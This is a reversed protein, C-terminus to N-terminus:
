FLYICKAVSESRKRTKRNRNYAKNRNVAPIIMMILVIVFAICAAVIPTGIAFAKKRKKAAKEAAIRREEAKGQAEM